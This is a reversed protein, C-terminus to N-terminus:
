ALGGSRRPCHSLTGWLVADDSYLPLVKDPEDEGLAQAWKQTAAAVDDKPEAFAVQASSLLIISLALGAGVQKLSSLM